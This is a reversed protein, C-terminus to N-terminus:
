HKPTGRTSWFVIGMGLAALVVVLTAVIIPGSLPVTM